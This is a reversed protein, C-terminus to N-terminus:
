DLSSSFSFPHWEFMGLKPICIFDYQGAVSDLDYKSWELKAVVGAVICVSASKPNKMASLYAYRFIVDAAWCGAGILSLSSGHILGSIVSCVMLM